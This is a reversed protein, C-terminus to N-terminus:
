LRCTGELTDQFLAFICSFTTPTRAINSGPKTAGKTTTSFGIAILSPTDAKNRFHTGCNQVWRNGIFLVMLKEKKHTLTACWSGLWSRSAPNQLIDQLSNMPLFTM